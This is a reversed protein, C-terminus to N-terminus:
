NPDARTYPQTQDTSYNFKGYDIEIAQMASRGLEIWAVMDNLKECFSWAEKFRHFIFWHKWLANCKTVNLIVKDWYVYDLIHTTSFRRSKDNENWKDHM